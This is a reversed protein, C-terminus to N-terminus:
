SGKREIRNNADEKILTYFTSFLPIFVLMGLVGFLSGGFTVAIFVWIAPLGISSGVVRPYILNNELQQVVLFVIVFVLAKVPSELLILFAGIFCAIFAGVIPLLASFMVVVGIMVAYPMRIISLLVIFIIGLIIAELCQGTIFSSFSNHLVDLFHHIRRGAKESVYARDLTKLQRGLREKEGLLYISFILSVFFSAVSSVVQGAVSFTSSLFAGLGNKLSPLVKGVLTELNDELIGSYEQSENFFSFVYKHLFASLRGFAVPADKIINDLASILEPIVTILLLFILFFVFLLSLIISFVRKLKEGKGKMFFLLRKEIFSMPLNLVYAMAGGIIFPKLVNTIFGLVGSIREGYLLLALILVIALFSSVIEKKYDENRNM